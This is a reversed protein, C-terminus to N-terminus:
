ETDPQKISTGMNISGFGYRQRISDLSANLRHDREMDALPAVVPDLTSAIQRVDKSPRLEEGVHRSGLLTPTLVLSATGVGLLRVIEKGTGLGTECAATDLLRCAAEYIAQGSETPMALTCRRTILRGFTSGEPRWVRQKPLLRLKIYVCRACFGERRLTWGVQESLTHLIVKLQTLNSEDEALTTERSISKPDGPVQVSSDDIGVARNLLDSAHVAGFLSCLAGESAAALEGITSIGLTLLIEATRPGVGPLARVPMPALTHAEDGQRIVVFGDPKDMDSAVKAMLKSSAMGVSATLGTERLIRAKLRKGTEIIPGESLESGTMDLYAEDLSVPEIVPSFESWVRRLHEAVERYRDFRGALVIAEPCLSLARALPMASRVGFARAEYSASAVVGRVGPMLEPRQSLKRANEGFERLKEMSLPSNGVIVPQGSLVSNDRQEVSAFFADMDVHAVWRCAPQGWLDAQKYHATGM